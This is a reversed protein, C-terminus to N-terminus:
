KREWKIGTIVVADSSWQGRGLSNRPKWHPSGNLWDYFEKRRNFQAVVEGKLNELVHPGAFDVKQKGSSAAELPGRLVYVGSDDQLRLANPPFEIAHRICAHLHRLVMGQAFGLGQDPQKHEIFILRYKGDASNEFYTDIDGVAAFGPGERHLIQNLASSAEYGKRHDRHIM